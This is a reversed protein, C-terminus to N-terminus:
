PLVQIIQIDGNLVYTQNLRPEQMQADLGVIQVRVSESVGRGDLYVTGAAAKISVVGEALDACVRGNQVVLVSAAPTAQLTLNWIQEQEAPASSAPTLQSDSELELAPAEVQESLALYFEVPDGARAFQGLVLAVSCFILVRIILRESRQVSVWVRELFSRRM